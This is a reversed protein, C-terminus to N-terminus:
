HAVGKDGIDSAKAQVKLAVQKPTM